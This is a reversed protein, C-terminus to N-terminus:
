VLMSWQPFNTIPKTPGLFDVVVDQLQNPIHTDITCMSNNENNLIKFAKVNSMSKIQEHTHKCYFNYLKTIEFASFDHIAKLCHEKTEQKAKIIFIAIEAATCIVRVCDFM